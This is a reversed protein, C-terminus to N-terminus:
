KSGSVTTPANSPDPLPYMSLHPFSFGCATVHLPYGVKQTHTTRHFCKFSQENPRGSSGVERKGGAGTEREQGQGLQFPRGVNCAPHSIASM